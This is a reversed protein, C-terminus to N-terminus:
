IFSVMMSRLLDERVNSSPMTAKNEWSDGEPDYAESAVGMTVGGFVYIKGNVVASMSDDRAISMSTKTAELILQLTM